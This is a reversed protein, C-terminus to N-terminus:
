FNSDSNIGTQGHKNVYEVSDHFSLSRRVQAVNGAACAEEFNSTM